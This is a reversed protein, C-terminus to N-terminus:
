WQYGIGVSTRLLFLDSFYSRFEPILSLRDTFRFQVGVGVNALPRSTSQRYTAGSTLQGNVITYDTSEQSRFRIGGGAGNRGKSWSATL